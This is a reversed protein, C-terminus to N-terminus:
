VGLMQRFSHQWLAALYLALTRLSSHHYDFSPKSIFTFFLSFNNFLMFSFLASESQFISFGSLWYPFDAKFSSRYHHRFVHFSQVTFFSSKCFRQFYYFAWTKGIFSHTWFLFTSFFSKVDKQCFPIKSIKYHFLMIQLLTIYKKIERGICLFKALISM